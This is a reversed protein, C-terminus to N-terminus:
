SENFKEDRAKKPVQTLESASDESEHFQAARMGTSRQPILTTKDGVPNVTTAGRGLSISIGM